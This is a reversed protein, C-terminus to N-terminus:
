EHSVMWFAAQFGALDPERFLSLVTGAFEVRESIEIRAGSVVFLFTIQGTTETSQGSEIQRIKEVQRLGERCGGASRFSRFHTSFKSASGREARGPRRDQEDGIPLLGLLAIQLSDAAAYRTTGVKGDRDPSFVALLWVM